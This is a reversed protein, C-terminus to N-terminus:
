NGRSKFSGKGFSAEREKMKEENIKDFEKQTVKKGDNPIAIADADLSKMSVKTAKMEITGDDISLLLIAGPLGNYSGPGVQTPIQSTYWAVVFEDENEIVAKQCEYDLYMIKENTLKWARKELDSEVVFSKGMIGKQHVIQKEKMSTYLIEESDDQSFKIMVFGDDSEMHKDEPASSGTKNRYISNGAEFLLEKDFSQSKPIMDLMAQPLGKLQENMESMDIKMTEQYEIVGTTQAQVSISLVLAIILISISKM